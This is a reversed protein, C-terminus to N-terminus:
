DPGRKRRADIGNIKIRYTKQMFEIQNIILPDVESPEVFMLAQYGKIAGNYIMVGCKDPRLKLGWSGTLYACTFNKCVDPRSDYITCGGSNCYQCRTHSKKGIADIRLVDCCVTCGDCGM